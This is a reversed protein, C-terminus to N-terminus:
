TFWYNFFALTDIRERSNKLISFFTSELKTKVALMLCIVSKIVNSFIDIDQKFESM